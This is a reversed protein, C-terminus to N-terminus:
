ESERKQLARIHSLLAHRADHIKRAIVPLSLFHMYNDHKEIEALQKDTLLTNM